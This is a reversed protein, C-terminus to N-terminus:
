VKREGPVSGVHRTMRHMWYDKLYDLFSASSMKKMFEEQRGDKVAQKYFGGIFRAFPYEIDMPEGDDLQIITNSSSQIAKLISKMNDFGQTVDAENVATSEKLKVTKPTGFSTILSTAVRDFGRGSTNYQPLYWKGNRDKKMKYATATQDDVGNFYHLHTMKPKTSSQYARNSGYSPKNSKYVSPRYGYMAEFDRIADYADDDDTDVLRQIYALMAKEDDTSEDLNVPPFEKDFQDNSLAGRNWMEPHGNDIFNRFRAPSLYAYPTYNIMVRKGNRVAYHWIKVNDEEEDTETEYTWGEYSYHRSENLRRFSEGLATEKAVKSTSQNKTVLDLVKKIAIQQKVDQSKQNVLEQKINEIEQEQESNLEEAQKLYSANTKHHKLLWKLMAEFDNTAIPDQARSKFKLKRLEPDNGHYTFIDKKDKDFDADEGIMADIAELERDLQDRSMSKSGEAMGQKKLINLADQAAQKTTIPRGEKDPGQSGGKDRSGYTRHSVRGDRGPQPASKDMESVKKRASKEPRQLGEFLNNLKM